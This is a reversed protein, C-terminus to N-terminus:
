GDGPTPVAAPTPFTPVGAGPARRLILVPCVAGRLVKEAVSGIFLRDLGTRGHSPMVILPREAQRALHIVEEAADGEGLVFEVEVGPKAITFERLREDLAEFYGESAIHVPGAVHVVIVRTGVGALAAAVNLAGRSRESFDTPVIITQFPPTGSETPGTTPPQHSLSHPGKVILVPCTAQRAVREAVSGLLVRSLGTRGHSGMVILDGKLAAVSRLISEVAHGEAIHGEVALDSHSARLGAIREELQVQHRKVGATGAAGKPGEHPPPATPTEAVHLVVLRLGHTGALHGALRLAHASSESFDTPHVITQLPSM